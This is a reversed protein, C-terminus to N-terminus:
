RELTVVRRRFGVDVAVWILAFLYIKPMKMGPKMNRHTYHALGSNRAGVFLQLEVAFGRETPV